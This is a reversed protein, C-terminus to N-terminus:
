MYPTNKFISEILDLSESDNFVVMVGQAIRWTRVEDVIQFNDTYITFHYDERFNVLEDLSRAILVHDQSLDLTELFPPDTKLEDYIEQIQEKTLISM